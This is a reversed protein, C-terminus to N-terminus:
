PKEAARKADRDARSPRPGRIHHEVPPNGVTVGPAVSTTIFVGGNITAGAGITTDGGLITAGAYVTVDDELTPHRRRGRWRQGGKTSLAGLTVGQYLKVRQGIVATEGIVVGSGHDIFFSEGITAGPHIDIGTRSHACESAIRGLLPIERRYLEHAIRHVFIADIGPYCFIAEDTNSAAPDGEFAAAVDTGLLTRLRPLESLLQSAIEAAQDQCGGCAELARGECHQQYRLAQNIQDALLRHTEDLLAVTRDHVGVTTVREVDFFGPFVLRRILEILKLVQPRSPLFVADIHQTREDERYTAVLGNAIIALAAPDPAPPPVVLRSPRASKLASEAATPPSQGIASDVSAASGSHPVDRNTM